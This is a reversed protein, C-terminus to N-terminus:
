GIFDEDADPDFPPADWVFEVWAKDNVSALVIAATFALLSLIVAYNNAVWFMSYVRKQFLVNYIFPLFLRSVPLLVTWFRVKLRNDDFVIGTIICLIGYILAFFSGAWNYTDWTVYNYVFANDTDAQFAATYQNGLLQGSPNSGLFYVMWTLTLLHLIGLVIFLAKVTKIRGFESRMPIIFMISLLLVDILHILIYAINSLNMHNTELAQICFDFHNTLFYVLGFLFSVAMLLTCVSQKAYKEM